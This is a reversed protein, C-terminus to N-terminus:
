TKRNDIAAWAVAVVIVIVAGIFGGMAMATESGRSALWVWQVGTLTALGLGVALLRQQVGSMNHFGKM